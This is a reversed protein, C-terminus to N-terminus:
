KGEPPIIMVASTSRAVRSGDRDSLTCRLILVERPKVVALRKVKTSVTLEHGAHIPRDYSTHQKAQMIQSRPIDFSALLRELEPIVLAMIFTPPAIIDPHGMSRAVKSDRYAPDPAGIADAFERIEEPTVTFPAKSPDPVSAIFTSHM